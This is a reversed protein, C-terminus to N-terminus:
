KYDGNLIAIAELNVEDEIEMKSPFKAIREIESLLTPDTTDRALNILIWLEWMGDNTRLIEIIEPIIKDAFPKLIDAIPRGIPWNMDQMWELLEPIIPKLQEFSLKKLDAIVKQDHKHKPILEKIDTYHTM